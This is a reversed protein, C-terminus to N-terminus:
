WGDAEQAKPFIEQTLIREIALSTNRVINTDVYKIRALRVVLEVFEYRQLNREASKILGHSNVNTSIFARDFQDTQLKDGDIVGMM